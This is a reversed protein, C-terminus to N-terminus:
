LSGPSVRQNFMALTRFQGSTVVYFERKTRQRKAKEDKQRKTKIDKLIETKKGKQSFDSNTNFNKDSECHCYFKLLLFYGVGSM